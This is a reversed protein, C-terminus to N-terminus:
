KHSGEVEGHNTTPNHENNRLNNKKNVELFHLRGQWWSNNTVVEWRQQKEFLLQTVTYHSYLSFTNMRAM